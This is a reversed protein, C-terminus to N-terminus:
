AAEKLTYKKLQGWSPGTSWDVPIYLERDHITFRREMFPTATRIVHEVEEPRAQFLLEDHVQHLLERRGPADIKNFVFPVNENMLCGTTSQPLFSLSDKLRSDANPDYFTRRYGFCNYVVGGTEVLTRRMEDWWRELPHLQLLKAHLPLVEAESFYKGLSEAEKNLNQVITRLKAYYLSAYTITKAVDRRLKRLTDTDGLDGWFHIVHESHTDAGALMKDLWAWDRMYAAALIAEANKYDGAVLVYGPAAVIVDRVQYLPDLKAVKKEQNQLNTSHGEFLPSENSSLRASATDPSLSTHIRGAASPTLRAYTGAVKRDRLGVLIPEVIGLAVARREPVGNMSLKGM